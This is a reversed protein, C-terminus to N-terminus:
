QLVDAKHPSLILPMHAYPSQSRDDCYKAIVWRSYNM